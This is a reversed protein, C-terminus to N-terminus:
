YFSNMCCQKKGHCKRSAKLSSTKLDWLHRTLSVFGTESQFLRCAAKEPRLCDTPAPETVPLIQYVSSSISMTDDQFFLSFECPWDWLHSIHRTLVWLLLLSDLPKRAKTNCWHGQCNWLIHKVKQTHSAVDSSVLWTPSLLLEAVKNGLRRPLSFIPLFGKVGKMKHKYSLLVNRPLQLIFIM